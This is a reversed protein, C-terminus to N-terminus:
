LEGQKYRDYLRTVNGSCLLVMNRKIVEKDWNWWKMEELYGIENPNFRFRIHRSPNGAVISYSAIDKTVVSHAGIVVGNGITVGGLIIAGWGVWVDNGIKIDGKNAVCGPIDIDEDIAPFPYTTIWDIRHEGDLMIITNDAFSCYKGISLNSLGYDLVIEVKGYSGEGINFKEYEPVQNLFRVM